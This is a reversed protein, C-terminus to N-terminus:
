RLPPLRKLGSETLVADLPVDWPRREICRCHQWDFALGLLWPKKMRWPDLRASFARDYYGGGMGIRGGCLDFGLLPLIVLDLREAPLQHRALPVPEVIGYRNKRTPLGPRYRQFVMKGPNGPDVVPVYVRKGQRLLGRVIEATPFEGPM